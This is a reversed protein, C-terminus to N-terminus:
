GKFTIKLKKASDGVAGAAGAGASAVPKTEFPIEIDFDGFCTQCDRVEISEVKPNDPGFTGKIRLKDVAM